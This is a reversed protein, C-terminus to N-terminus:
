RANRIVVIGSGGSHGGAGGGGGTNTSGNSGTISLANKAGKGGGGAGGDAYSGGGGGAYLAGTSEGFERTTDGSGTGGRTAFPSASTDFTGVGNGGNSGDSGGKGGANTGAGNGGGGSGGNGGKGGNGAYGGEASCDFASSTGGRSSSAGYGGVTIQYDTNVALTTRANKVYGGGGAGSWGSGGGGGVCFVDIGNAGSGLDIFRLVGSTLFKIRWNQTKGDEAYGDDILTYTGSYTFEPYSLSEAVVGGRRVIYCDSM